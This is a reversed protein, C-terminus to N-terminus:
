LSRKCTHMGYDMVYASVVHTYMYKHMYVIVNVWVYRDM